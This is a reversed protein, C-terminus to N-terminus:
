RTRCRCESSSACPPPEKDSARRPCGDRRRTRTTRTSPRSRRSCTTASGSSRPASPRGPAAGAHDRRHHHEDPLPPQGRLCAGDAGPRPRAGRGAGRLRRRRPHREAQHLPRVRSLPPAALGRAPRRGPVQRHAPRLRAALLRSPRLGRPDGGGLPGGRLHSLRPQLPEPHRRRPAPRGSRRPRAPADAGVPDRQLRRRRPGPRRADGPRAGGPGGRPSDM